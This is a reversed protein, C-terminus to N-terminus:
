RVSRLNEQDWVERIALKIADASGLKPKWGFKLLREVSYIFRPVDGVWGRNEVGYCIEAHPSLMQCVTEAIFKVSVGSDVPGINIPFPGKANQNKRIFLMADVLDVVHLYSKQQSGNGLVELKQPSIIIKKVFDLIVGHTAPCGVVNPFRFINARELFSECAASITAESALKMAGYNSIPLLPGISEHLTTTGLDGYIASSSAFHINKVQHKKMAELLTLTTQFTDRFDLNADVIGASIDSNAALHWLEDVKGISLAYEFARQTEHISSLDTNIFRVQGSYDLGLLQLYEIKGRSLNDLVVILRNESVLRKVLNSGIFGAGGAVISVSM